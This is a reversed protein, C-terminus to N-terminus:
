NPGGPLERVEEAADLMDAYALRAVDVAENFPMGRLQRREPASLRDRFLTYAVVEALIFMTGEFESGGLQGHRTLLRELKKSSWRRPDQEHFAKPEIWPGQFLVEDTERHLVQAGHQPCCHLGWPVDTPFYLIPLPEM